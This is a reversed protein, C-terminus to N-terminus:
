KYNGDEAIIEKVDNCKFKVGGGMQNIKSIVECPTMDKGEFEVKKDMQMSRKNVVGEGGEIEIAQGTSKVEMPMGGKAHSNGYALGGDKLKCGCECDEKHTEGGFKYMFLADDIEDITASWINKIENWANKEEGSNANMIKKDALDYKAKAIMTKALRSKNSFLLNDAEEGEQKIYEAIEQENEVVDGGLDYRSKREKYWDHIKEDSWDSYDEDTENLIVIAERFSPSEKFQMVEQNSSSEMKKLKDYYDPMEELHHLAITEAIM